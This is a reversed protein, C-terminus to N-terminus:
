TQRARLGAQAQCEVRMEGRTEDPVLLLAALAPRQREGDGRPTARRVRLNAM